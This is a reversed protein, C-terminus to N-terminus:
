FADPPNLINKKMFVGSEKLSSDNWPGSPCTGPKLMGSSEGDDTFSWGIWSIKEGTSNNGGLLDVFNQANNYNDPSNGNSSSAGWETVFIPLKGIYPRILDISMDGAYLHFTYMINYALNDTLPDNLPSALDSSWEPNGVIIVVDSDNGRIIPIITEAYQKISSWSSTPENAIEYIVDKRGAYTSSIDSWFTKAEELYDMPNGGHVHWDVIAYMGRSTVEDVLKKAKQTMGQPDNIYGGETVYVPIRYVDVGWGNESDVLWDLSESTPCTRWPFWQIGQDSVGRLQIAKGYQNVLKTGVVKLRGNIEVPTGQKPPPSQSTGWNQLLLILDYIDVNGSGNLDANADNTGWMSLLKLLDFIDVDNDADLDGTSTQSLLLSAPVALLFPIIILFFLLTNQKM